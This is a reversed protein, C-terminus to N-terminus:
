GGLLPEVQEGTYGLIRVWATADFDKDAYLIRAKAYDAPNNDARFRQRVYQGYLHDDIIVGVRAGDANTMAERFPGWNVLRAVAIPAEGVRGMAGPASVGMTFALRIRTGAHPQLDRNRDLLEEDLYRPMGALVKGVDTSAPFKLMSADGQDQWAVSEPSVDVDAIGGNLVSALYDQSTKQLRASLKSYGVIDAFAYLTHEPARERGGRRGHAEEEAPPGGVVQSFTGGSGGIQNNGGSISGISVGDSM